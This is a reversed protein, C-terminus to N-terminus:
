HKNATRPAFCRFAFLRDKCNVVSSKWLSCLRGHRWRTNGCLPMQKVTDRGRRSSFTSDKVAYTSPQSRTPGGGEQEVWMPEQGVTQTPWSLGQGVRRREAHNNQFVTRSSSSIGNRGSENCLVGSAKQVASITKATGHVTCM